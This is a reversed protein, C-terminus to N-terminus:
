AVQSADAMPYFEYERPETFDLPSRPDFAGGKSYFGRFPHPGLPREPCPLGPAFLPVELCLPVTLRNVACARGELIVFRSIKPSIALFRYAV